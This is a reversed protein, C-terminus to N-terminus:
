RGTKARWDAWAEPTDLDTTAHADPLAVLGPPHTRLLRRAGEDGTLRAFLPLLVPPFVVPHGPTGDATTARLPTGDYAKAMTEFDQTTIEPMDAPCLILARTDAWSAAARLSASMGQAAEPVPLLALDLGALAARRAAGDPPLTVAVPGTAAALAARAQRRLLPDGDVPELLKDRGAMRRSAGAALLVTCFGTL